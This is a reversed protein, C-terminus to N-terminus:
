VYMFVGLCRDHMRPYHATDFISLLIIGIAGAIACLVAILSLSKNFWSTNPALRGEHRLWREALMSIDLTVVM